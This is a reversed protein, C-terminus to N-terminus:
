FKPKTVPRKDNFESFDPAPRNQEKRFVRLRASRSRANTAIEEASPKIARSSYLAGWRERYQDPLTDHRDVAKGCLRKFYRKVIRDELSHFSILCLLGGLNLADVAQPLAARLSQLEQNVWMRIGQFSRTAPHIRRHGKVQAQILEALQLTDSFYGSGRHELIAVVIRKWQTEEGLDRIAEILEAESAEEIFDLASQGEGPNMRMDLPGSRRFSFGRQATDLQFSSVGLDFLIFDFPDEKLKSLRSFNTAHFRLRGPFDASVQAAREIAEPDQDLAVVEARAFADLFARTHGGGGFTADLIRNSSGTRRLAEEALGKIPELLVPTHTGNM